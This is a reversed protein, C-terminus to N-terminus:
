ASGDKGTGRFNGTGARVASPAPMANLAAESEQMARRLSARKTRGAEDALSLVLAEREELIRQKENASPAEPARWGGLCNKL